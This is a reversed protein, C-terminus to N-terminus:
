RGCVDALKVDNLIIVAEDTICIKKNQKEFTGQLEQVFVYTNGM